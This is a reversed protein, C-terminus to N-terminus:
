VQCMVSKEVDDEGEEKKMWGEKREVLMVWKKELGKKVVVVLWLSCITRGSM